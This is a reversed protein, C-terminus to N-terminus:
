GEINQALEANRVRLEELLVEIKGGGRRIVSVFEEKQTTVMSASEVIIDVVKKMGDVEHVVWRTEIPATQDVPFVRVTVVESDRRGLKTEVFEISDSSYGAFLVAYKRVINEELLIEFEAMEEPTARRVYPGLVRAAVHPIDLGEKLLDRFREARVANSMDPDTLATLAKDAMNMIFAGTDDLARAPGTALSLSAAVFAATLLSLLDRRRM